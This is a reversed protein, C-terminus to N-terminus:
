KPALIRAIADDILAEGQAMSIRRSAVFTAIGQMTVSTLLTTHENEAVIESITASLREAALLLSPPPADTKAAFMLELLAANTVAFRLYARASSRLAAEHSEPAADAGARMEDALRIFGREALADLLAKRDVFHSRPAGHSVGAERALERLSLENIGRQKVVIEAQDLLVDRLNGRRYGLGAM